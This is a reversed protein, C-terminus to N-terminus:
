FRAHPIACRSGAPPAMGIAEESGDYGTFRSAPYMEAMRMLARGAGCGVDLVDLGRALRGVLGPVLPLIHGDLAAVVTQASEEAMVEHFRTYASYPVGKGHRFAQ